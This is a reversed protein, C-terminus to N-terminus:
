KTPKWERTLKQAEAIQWPTMREAVMARFAAAGLDGNAEGLKFWMYAHVIDHPVGKGLFCMIGLQFQAPLEGQDAALRYWKVAEAYDQPVGKGYYYINGLDLQANSLGQDAALRYWKVAEAYDQPM